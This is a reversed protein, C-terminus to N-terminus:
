DLLVGVTAIIALKRLGARDYVPDRNQMVQSIFPALFDSIARDFVRNSKLYLMAFLQYTNFCFPIFSFTYSIPILLNILPFVYQQCILFISLNIILSISNNVLFRMQLDGHHSFSAKTSCHCIMYPQILFKELSWIMPMQLVFLVECQLLLVAATFFFLLQLQDTVSCVHFKEDM